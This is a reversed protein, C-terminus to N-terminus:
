FMNHNSLLFAFILDSLSYRTQDVDWDGHEWSKCMYCEKGFKDKGNEECIMCGNSDSYKIDNNDEGHQGM